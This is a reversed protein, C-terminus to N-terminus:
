LTDTQEFGINKELYFSNIDLDLPWVIESHIQSTMTEGLIRVFLQWSKQGTSHPCIDQCNKTRIKPSVILEYMWESILQGKVYPFILRPM